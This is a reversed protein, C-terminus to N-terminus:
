SREIWVMSFGKVKADEMAEKLEKATPNQLHIGEARSDAETRAVKTSV